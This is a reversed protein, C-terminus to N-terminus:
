RVAAREDDLAPATPAVPGAGAGRTHLWADVAMVVMTVFPGIVAAAATTVLLRDGTLFVPVTVAVGVCWAILVVFHRELALLTSQIIMAVMVCGTGLTLLALYSGPLVDHARMINKLVWPGVLWACAAAFLAVGACLSTLVRTRARVEAYRRHVAAATLRPLLPAQLPVLILIGLRTLGVASNVAAAKNAMQTTVHAGSDYRAAVLLPIANYLLQNALSAATLLSLRAGGREPEAAIDAADGPEAAAPAGASFEVEIGAPVEARELARAQEERAYASAADYGDRGSWRPALVGFVAALTPGGLAFVLGYLWVSSWGLVLVVVAPILRTLGEVILTGSFLPYDRRGTLVGRIPFIALGGILGILLEGFLVWNHGLSRSVLVPSLLCTALMTGGILWAAHRSQRAVVPAPDQGLAAAKTVQRAMEQESGAMMGTVITALLFNLGSLALVAQSGEQTKPFSANIIALFASGAAGSLGLGIALTVSPRRILAYLSRPSLRM